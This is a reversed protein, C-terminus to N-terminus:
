SVWPGLLDSFLFGSSGVVCLVFSVARESLM